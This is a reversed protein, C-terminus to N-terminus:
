EKINILSKLREIEKWIADALGKDQIGLVGVLDRGLMRGMEDKTFLNTRRLSAADATRPLRRNAAQQSRPPHM